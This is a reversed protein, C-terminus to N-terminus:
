AGRRNRRAMRKGGNHTEGAGGMERGRNARLGWMGLNRGWGGRKRPFPMLERRRKCAVRGAGTQLSGNARRGGAEAGSWGQNVEGENRIARAEM